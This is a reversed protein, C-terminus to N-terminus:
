HPQNRVSVCNIPSTIQYNGDTTARMLSATGQFSARRLYNGLFKGAKLFDLTESECSDAVLRLGSGSADVGCGM